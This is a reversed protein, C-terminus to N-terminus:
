HGKLEIKRQAMWNDISFKVAYYKGCFRFLPFGAWLYWDWIHAKSVNLYEAIECAEILKIQDFSKITDKTIFNLGFFSTIDKMIEALNQMLSMLFNRAAKNNEDVTHLKLHARSLSKLAYGLAEYAKKAQEIEEIHVAQQLLFDFSDAELQFDLLNNSIPKQM